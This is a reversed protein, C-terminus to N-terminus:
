DDLWEMTRRERALRFQKHPYEQRLEDLVGRAEDESGRAYGDWPVWTPKNTWHREDLWYVLYAFLAKDSGSAAPSGETPPRM